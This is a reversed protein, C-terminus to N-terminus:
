ESKEGERQIGMQEEVFRLHGKIDYHSGCSMASQFVDEVTWNKFSHEGQENTYEHFAELLAELRKMEEEGVRYEVTMNRYEM